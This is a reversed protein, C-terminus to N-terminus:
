NAALHSMRSVGAAKPPALRYQRGIFCFGYGLELIFRQCTHFLVTKWNADLSPKIKLFELNYSSKIMEDAQEALQKPLALAFNHTRRM